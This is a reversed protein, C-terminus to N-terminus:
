QTQCQTPEDDDEWGAEEDNSHGYDNLDGDEIQVVEIIDDPKTQAFAEFDNPLLSRLDNAKNRAKDSEELTPTKGSTGSLWGDAPFDVRIVIYLDGRIEKKKIPMGEGKIRLIHGPRLVKSGPLKNKSTTQIKIGRGDLHRLVVRDIGTLAETLSVHVEASLDAGKRSFVAHAQERIDFILDGPEGDLQGGVVDGEGRLVIRDGTQSGPPVYLELLKKEPVVGAGKCKKCKDKDRWLKKAGNCTTCESPISIPVGQINAIRNM